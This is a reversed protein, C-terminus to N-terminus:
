FAKLNNQGTLAEGVRTVTVGLPGANNVPGHVSAAPPHAHPGSLPFGRSGLVSSDLALSPTQGQTRQERDPVGGPNDDAGGNTDRRCTLSIFRTQRSM